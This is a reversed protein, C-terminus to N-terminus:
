RLGSLSAGCGWVQNFRDGTRQRARVPKRKGDGEGGHNSGEGEEEEAKGGGNCNAGGIEPDSHDAEISRVDNLVQVDEVIGLMLVM